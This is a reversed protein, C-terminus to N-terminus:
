SQWCVLFKFNNKRSAFRAQIYLIKTMTGHGLLLALNAHTLYWQKKGLLIDIMERESGNKEEYCV